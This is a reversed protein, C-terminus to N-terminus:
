AKGRKVAEAFEECENALGRACSEAADDSVSDGGIRVFEALMSGAGAYFARRCEKRQVPGADDPLVALNYSEWMEALTTM